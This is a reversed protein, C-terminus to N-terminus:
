QEGGQSDMMRHWEKNAGDLLIDFMTALIISDGCLCMRRVKTEDAIAIIISMGDKVVEKRNKNVWDAVEVIQTYPLKEKM